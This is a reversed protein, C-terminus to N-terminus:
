RVALSRKINRVQLLKIIVSVQRLNVTTKCAVLDGTNIARYLNGNRFLSECHSVTFYVIVM